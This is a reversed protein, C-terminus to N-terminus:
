GGMTSLLDPNVFLLYFALSNKLMHLLIGAWINGTMERLSCLVISLAFVDIAVNWQGHVAGFLVSVILIVIWVPMIKRLKGYLYGRFLVEESLPAIIILTVFALIYEYYYSLNGFGTEQVQKLDLSPVLAVLSSVLAISCILYIVAGAPALAIDMWTPLRNLGIDQRSTRYKKIWWPLGIVIVATLMYTCSTLVATLVSQNIGIFSVGMFRLVYVIVVLLAQSLGFGALVWLPLAISLMWRSTVARHVPKDAPAPKNLSNASM